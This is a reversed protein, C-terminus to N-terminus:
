DQHERIHEFYVQTPNNPDWNSAIVPLNTTTHLLPCQVTTTINFVWQHECKLHRLTTCLTLLIILTLALISLLTTLFFGLLALLLLHPCQVGNAPREPTKNTLPTVPRQAIHVSLSYTDKLYFVTLILLLILLVLSFWTLILLAALITTSAM